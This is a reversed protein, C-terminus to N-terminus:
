QGNDLCESLPTTVARYIPMFDAHYPCSPRLLSPLSMKNAEGPLFSRVRHWGTRVGPISRVNKRLRSHLGLEDKTYRGQWKNTMGQALYSWFAQKVVGRAKDIGIGDQRVLAEALYDRFVLYSAPWTPSTIWDYLDPLFTKQDQAQRVLYLPDLQKVKGLIVSLCCPLLEAAFSTDSLLPSGGFMVRWSEVRHVSFVSVSYNSLHNVLRDPSTEDEIIPQRYCGAAAVHGHAGSSQLNVIAAVGHAASYDQHGDLFAACEELGTPVLFDDDPVLAAYRTSVCELLQQVCNAMALYPCERYVINLVDQFEAVAGKTREIHAPESSDGICIYGQFNLDRYYDLLRFLFDPRNKTPILLTVNL